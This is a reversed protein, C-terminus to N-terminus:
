DRFSSGALKIANSIDSLEAPGSFNTQTLLRQLGKDSMKLLAPIMRRFAQNRSKMDKAQISRQELFRKMDSQTPLIEGRDFAIAIRVLAEHRDPPLNLHEIMTRARPEEAKKEIESSVFGSKDPISGCIADIEALIESKTWGRLLTTVLEHLLQPKTIKSSM